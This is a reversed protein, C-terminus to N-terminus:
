NNTQVFRDGYDDIFESATSVVYVISIESNGLCSNAAQRIKEKTQFRFYVPFFISAPVDEYKLDIGIPIDSPGSNTVKVGYAMGLRWLIECCDQIDSQCNTCCYEPCTMDNGVPMHRVLALCIEFALDCDEQSWPRTKEGSVDIPM